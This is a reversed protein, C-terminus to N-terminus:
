KSIIVNINKSGLEPLDNIHGIKTYSYSTDFEKYFIVLCNNGYLMVDGVNIREPVLPNTPLTKDLYVFKENNNLETMNYEQPLMKIFHKVTENDELNIQYEKENIIIKLSSIVENSKEENENITKIKQNSCGMITFLAIFVTITLLVNRKM